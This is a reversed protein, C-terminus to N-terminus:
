KTIAKTPCGKFNANNGAICINCGTCKTQDILAKNKVMTIANVPCNTVCLRCGICSKDRSLWTSIGKWAPNGAVDRLIYTKGKWTVTSCVIAGKSITGSVSLTDLEAPHLGLSDMAAPPVLNLIRSEKGNQLFYRDNMLKVIGTHNQLALAADQKEAEAVVNLVILSLCLTLVVM